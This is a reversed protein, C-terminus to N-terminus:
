VSRTWETILLGPVMWILEYLLVNAPSLLEEAGLVALAVMALIGLIGGLLHVVTGARYASRLARSGTVAFAMGALDERTMLALAPEGEEPQIQTLALRQKRDPFAMRRTNVGFKSRVYDETLMFDGATMVPTLGRYACLTTLGAAAPKTKALSVAFVGGLEGDIAVYVAQNVRTGKPMDVGMEQMFSLSGALVASGNVEGGVGGNPYSRLNEAKYHYGSHSELLQEFLPALAGGDEAILATACAIVTDPNRSGYFKVGNMKASGAPFLDTDMLPFVGPKSLEAVGPWGCLVTGLKHLRRELLAMPRSYTVYASAPVAVLMAAAFVRIGLYVSHLVGAAIGAALSALLAIVAYVSMVQESGSPIRYNDMFDEVQGESRLFGTKGEYYEPVSVIGDLRVAKRMTDMQGMETNRKQYAGWLSMTMHLSFAACCPVRVDRLCLVADVCCVCLSFLLLTNLSFRRRLLDQVGELLQYSGFLGSLLLALFQGFVLLRIRDEGIGGMAYLGISAMSLLSVILNALIALQLKGLGQEALEYYRKEPGEILKRKLERLRSKPRFVIPEQPVYDRIPQEYEPEWQSSYPEAKEEAAAAVFDEEPLEEDEGVPVFRATDGMNETQKKRLAKTIEDLRVTDGPLQAENRSEAAAKGDWVLVDEEPQSAKSAASEAPAAQENTEQEPDNEGFERLIDELSIEEQLDKEKHDM